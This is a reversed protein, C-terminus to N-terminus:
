RLAAFALDDAIVASFFLLKENKFTACYVTKNSAEYRYNFAAARGLWLWVDFLNGGCVVVLFQWRIVPGPRDRPSTTQQRTRRQAGTQM